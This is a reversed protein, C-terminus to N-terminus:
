ARRKEIEEIAQPIVTFLDGVIGFDAIEFVPADADKNIAVITKSAHMGTKQQLAGSIGVSVYLQPAVTKGTQGVQTEHPLWGADTVARTSGIAANLTDALAEIPTIDGNIGRGAAVVIAAEELRPRETRAGHATATMSVDQVTPAELEVIEAAGPQAATIEVSNPKLSVLARDTSVRVTTNYAGGLVNKTAVPGPAVAIADTIVGAELRIGLRALVETSEIDNSSLVIDASFDEVAAQALALRSSADRCPDGSGVYVKEAGEPRYTDAANEATQNFALVAFDGLSRAAAFLERESSSLSDNNAEHTSLVLVNTM